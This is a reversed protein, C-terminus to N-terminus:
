GFLAQHRRNAKSRAAAEMQMSVHIRQVTPPERQQNHNTQLLQAIFALISVEMHFDLHLLCLDFGLFAPSQEEGTSLLAHLCGRSPIQIYLPVIVNIISNYHYYKNNIIYHICQSVILIYKRCRNPYGIKSCNSILTPWLPKLPSTPDSKPM